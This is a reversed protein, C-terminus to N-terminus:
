AVDDHEPLEKRDVYRKDKGKGTKLPRNDFFGSVHTYIGSVGSRLYKTRLSAFLIYQLATVDRM